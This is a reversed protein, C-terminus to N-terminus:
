HVSEMLRQLTAYIKVHDKLPLGHDTMLEAMEQRIGTVAVTCGLLHAAEMITCIRQYVEKDFRLLGSWDLCLVDVGGKAINTLAIDRIKRARAESLNGVLPVVAVAKGCILFPVAQDEASLPDGLEAVAQELFTDLLENFRLVWNYLEQMETFGAQHFFAGARQLFTRRLCSVFACCASLPIGSVMLKGSILQKVQAAQEKDDQLSMEVIQEALEHFSPHNIVSDAIAFEEGIATLIHNCFAKKHDRLFTEWSRNAAYPYEMTEQMLPFNEAIPFILKFATGVGKESEVEIKAGHQYITAYVQALGMGTGESKTSFFPTGLMDLDKESIGVGTDRITVIMSDGERRHSIYITGKDPIAEFANKLLNFLAKKLQNRKGLIVENQDRLDKEIHVRYIQDQFLFLIAELEICLKIESFAENDPDPRAVQLLNQLASIARDLEVSAIDLYKHSTQEKLLQLFGKVATLPNRIEHAIGASIQGVNALRSLHNTEYSPKPNGQEKAHM